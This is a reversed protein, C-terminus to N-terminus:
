RPPELAPHPRRRAARGPSADPPFVPIHTGPLFRGHKYPNRDVTFAVLDERIGCYNLLTNGKGPAGYGAVKEGAEARTSSSACSTGSRRRCGNPSDPTPM